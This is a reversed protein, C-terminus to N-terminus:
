INSLSMLFLSNKEVFNGGSHFEQSRIKRTGGNREELEQLRKKGRM